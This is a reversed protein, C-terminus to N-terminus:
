NPSIPLLNAQELDLLVCLYTPKHLGHTNFGIAFYCGNKSLLKVTGHKKYIIDRSFHM